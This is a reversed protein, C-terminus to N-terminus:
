EGILDTRLDDRGNRKNFVASKWLLGIFGLLNPQLGPAIAYQELFAGALLTIM